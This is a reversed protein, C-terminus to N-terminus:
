EGEVLAKLAENFRVFNAQIDKKMFPLLIWALIGSFKEGQRFLTGGREPSLLFYHEGTFLGGIGGLKGLWRFEKQSEMKLIRPKFTMDSNGSRMVAVLQQDSVQKISTIFPNWKPYSSFDMLAKWVSKPDKDIHIETQIHYWM